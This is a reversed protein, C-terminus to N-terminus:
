GSAWARRRSPARRKTGSTTPISRPAGGVTWSRVAEPRLSVARVVLLAGGDHGVVDIPGSQRAFEGLLWDVYAEKTADFGEPAPCGFGPLSLTVVDKRALCALLATWVRHTGPAGHVFVAPM